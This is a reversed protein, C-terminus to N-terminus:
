LLCSYLRCFPFFAAKLGKENGLLSLKKNGEEEKKEESKEVRFGKMHM